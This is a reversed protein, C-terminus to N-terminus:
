CYKWVRDKNYNKTLSCWKKGFADGDETCSRYILRRYWFPFACQAMDDESCYKWYGQYTSNLSCWKHKRRLRICDHFYSNNYKFPFVCKGESFLLLKPGERPSLPCPISVYDRKQQCCWQYTLGLVATSAGNGLTDEPDARAGSEGFETGFKLIYIHKNGMVICDEAGLCKSITM